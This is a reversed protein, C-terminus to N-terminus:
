SVSGISEVRQSHVFWEPAKLVDVVANDISPHLLDDCDPEVVVLLLASLVVVAIRETHSSSWCDRCRLWSWRGSHCRLDNHHWAGSNRWWDCRGLLNKSVLRRRRCCGLLNKGTGVVEFSHAVFALVGHGHVQAVITDAIPGRAALLFQTLVKTAAHTRPPVLLSLFKGMCSVARVIHM